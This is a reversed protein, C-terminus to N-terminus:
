VAGGCVKPEQRVTKMGRAIAASDIGAPLQIAYRALDALTKRLQQRPERLQDWPVLYAAARSGDRTVTIIRLDFMVDEGPRKASLDRRIRRLDCQIQDGETVYVRVNLFGPPLQGLSPLGHLHALEDLTRRLRKERFLDMKWTRDLYRLLSVLVVALNRLDTMGITVLPGLTGRKSSSVQLAGGVTKFYPGHIITGRLPELKEYLAVLRDRLWPRAEILQPFKVPRKLAEIKKVFKHTARKGNEVLVWELLMDLLKFATVLVLPAGAELFGLRWDGIRINAAGYITQTPPGGNPPYVLEDVADVALRQDAIEYVAELLWAEYETRVRLNGLATSGYPTTSTYMAQTPIVAQANLQPASKVGDPLPM